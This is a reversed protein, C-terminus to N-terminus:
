SLSKFDESFVYVSKTVQDMPGLKDLMLAKAKVQQQAIASMDQSEKTFSALGGNGFDEKLM